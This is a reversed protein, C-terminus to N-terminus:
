GATKNYECEREIRSIKIKVPMVMRDNNEITIISGEAPNGNIYKVDTVAQDLKWDNNYFWEKWFWNLDEGSADNM